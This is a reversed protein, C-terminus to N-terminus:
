DLGEATLRTETPTIEYQRGFGSAVRISDSYTLKLEAGSGELQWSFSGGRIAQGGRREGARYHQVIDPLCPPNLLHGVRQRVLEHLRDQIASLASETQSDLAAPEAAPLQQAATIAEVDDAFIPCDHWHPFIYRKEKPIVLVLHCGRQRLGSWLPELLNVFYIIDNANLGMGGDLDSLLIARLDLVLAPTVTSALTRLEEVLARHKERSLLTGAPINAVSVSGEQRLQISEL